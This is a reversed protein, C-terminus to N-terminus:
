FCEPDSHEKAMSAPTEYAGSASRCLSSVCTDAPASDAREDSSSSHVLLLQAAGEIPLRTLEASGEAAPAAPIPSGSQRLRPPSSLSTRARAGVLRSPDSMTREKDLGGTDGCLERFVLGRDLRNSTTRKCANQPGM